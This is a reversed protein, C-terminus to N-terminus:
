KNPKKRLKCYNEWYSLPMYDNETPSIKYYYKASNCNHCLIQYLDPRFESKALYGYMGGVNLRKYEKTKRHKAGDNNIHDVTLLEYRDEGCYACKLGYLKLVKIKNRHHGRRRCGNQFLKRKPDNERKKDSKRLIESWRKQNNKIWNRNYIRHYERRKNIDKYPM